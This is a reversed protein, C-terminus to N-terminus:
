AATLADLQATLDARRHGHRVGLPAYDLVAIEDRITSIRASREAPSMAAAKDAMVRSQAAVFQVATLDVMRADDWASRLLRSFLKPLFVRETATDGAAYVAPRVLHYAAWAAKVVESRNVM